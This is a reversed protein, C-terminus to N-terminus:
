YTAFLFWADEYKGNPKRMVIIQDKDEDEELQSKGSLKERSYCICMSFSREFANWKYSYM